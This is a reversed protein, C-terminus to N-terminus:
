PRAVQLQGPGAYRANVITTVQAYTSVNIQDVHMELQPFPLMGVIAIGAMRSPIRGEKNLEETVQHALQLFQESPSCGGIVLVGGGATEIQGRASRFKSELIKKMRDADPTVAPWWFEDPAKIELSHRTVSDLNIFMDSSRGGGNKPEGFGIWNGADSLYSAALMQSVNHKFDFLTAKLIPEFGPHHNWRNFIDLLVQIIGIAVGDADMVDITGAASSRKLQEIAWAPPFKLFRM